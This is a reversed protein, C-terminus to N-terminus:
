MSFTTLTTANIKKPVHTESNAAPPPTLALPTPSTPSSASNTAPAAAPPDNSTKAQYKNPETNDPFTSFVCLQTPGGSM